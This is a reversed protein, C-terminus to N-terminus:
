RPLPSPLPIADASLMAKRRWILGKDTLGPMAVSQHRCIPQKCDM